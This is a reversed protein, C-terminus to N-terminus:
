RMESAHVIYGSLYRGTDEQGVPPHLKRVPNHTSGMISIHLIFSSGNIDGTDVEKKVYAM